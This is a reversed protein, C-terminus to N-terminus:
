DIVTFPATLYYTRGGGPWAGSGAEKLIRYHGPPFGRPIRFSNCRGSAGPGAYMLLLTWGGRIAGPVPIWDGGKLRQVSFAEGHGIWQTGYNEIRTLVQQGPHFENGSIGLRADWFKREVRLYRGYRALLKGDFGLIEIDYRYFGPTRPLHMFSKVEDRASIIRVRKREKAIVSGLQDFSDAPRIRSRLIWRLPTRGYYNESHLWFGTMEGVALIPGGAIELSVTKPGFPLEGSQPAERVSSFESLGFDEVPKDPSCFVPNGFEYPDVPGRSRDAALASSAVVLLGVSLAALVKPRLLGTVQHQLASM